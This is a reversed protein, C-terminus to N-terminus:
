LQEYTNSEAPLVKSELGGNEVDQARAAMMLM